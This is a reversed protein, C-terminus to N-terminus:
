QPYDLYNEAASPQPCRYGRALNAGRDLGILIKPLIEEPYHSIILVAKKNNLTGIFSDISFTTILLGLLSYMGIEVSSFTLGAASAIMFDFILLASGIQVGTYMNFIRALIDTGGTSADQNFVIAMGIGTTLGGFIAGILLDDAFPQIPLLYNLLDIAGSLLFIGYISKVGFNEGLVRFAVLFLVANIVLMTLGVPFGATYYLITAIGSVGGPAIRNPIFFLVLGLALIIVGLTIFLYDRWPVRLKM